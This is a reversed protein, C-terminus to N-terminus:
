LFNKALGFLGNLFISPDDKKNGLGCLAEFKLDFYSIYFQIKIERVKM